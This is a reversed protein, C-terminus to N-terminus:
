DKKFTMHANRGWPCKKTQKSHKFWSLFVIENAISDTILVRHMYMYPTPVNQESLM